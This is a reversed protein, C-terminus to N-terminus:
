AAGGPQTCRRSAAARERELKEKRNMVEDVYASVVAWEEEGKLMEEVMKEVDFVGQRHGLRRERTEEFYRCREITHKVDDEEGSDCLVCTPCDARNIRYLYSQFCGHGTMVQTLHYTINGHRRDYWARIDPILRKTWEGVGGGNEGSSWREQWRNMTKIREEKKPISERLRSTREELALDWPITRALVLVADTSVTRYARSIRIAVKRQVSALRRKNRAGKLAPGGWVPAGYMVISEAVSALVRRKAEGAGYTRPMLRGLSAVAKAAKKVAYEVHPSFSLGQDLVVGLYKVQRKTAVIHGQLRIRIPRCKRRGILMIAETKEPALELRHEEMWAAVAELADEATRELEAEKKATVILALDDAYAVMSTGEPMKLELVGNYAMNWLVPGLVSGQPVGATVRFTPAAGQGEENGLGYQIERRELYSGLIRILYPSIGKRVMTEVIVNWSMSNFANRVDLFVALCLKRTKLTKTREAEAISIVRDLASLTSRGKRFGYQTDALGNKEELEEVLRAALITEMAKGATSLMCLPRYASPDNLPKGPKPILVLRAQKWEEPFRGARLLENAVEAFYLPAEDLLCKVAEPPVGDLGPAKGSGLKHGAQAVEERTVPPFEQQGEEESVRWREPHRPFLRHVVSVTLEKTLSPLARGLKKTVIKYGLGWVDEEVEECLNRWKTEKSRKILLRLHKRAARYV